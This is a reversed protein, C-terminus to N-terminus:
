KPRRAFIFLGSIMTIPFIPGIFDSPPLPAPLGGDVLDLGTLLSHCPRDAKRVLELSVAINVMNDKPKICLSNYITIVSKTDNEVKKVVVLPHQNTLGFNISKCLILVRGGTIPM